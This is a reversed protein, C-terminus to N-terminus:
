ARIKYPQTHNLWKWCNMLVPMSMPYNEYDEEKKTNRIENLLDLHTYFDGKKLWVKTQKKKDCKKTAQVIM